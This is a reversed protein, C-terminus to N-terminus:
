MATKKGEVRYRKAETRSEAQCIRGRCALDKARSVVPTLTMITISPLSAIPRTSQRPHSGDDGLGPQILTINLLQLLREALAGEAPKAILVTLQNGHRPAM